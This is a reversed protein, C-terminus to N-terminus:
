APLLCIGMLLVQIFFYGFVEYVTAPLKRRCAFDYTTPIARQLVCPANEGFCVAQAKQRPSNKQRKEMYRVCNCKTAPLKRRCDSCVMQFKIASHQVAKFHQRLARIKARRPMKAPM